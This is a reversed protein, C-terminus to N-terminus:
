IKENNLMKSNKVMIDRKVDAIMDQKIYREITSTVIEQIQNKLEDKVLKEMELKVFTQIVRSYYNKIEDSLAGADYNYWSCQGRDYKGSMKADGLDLGNKRIDALTERVTDKIIENTTIDKIHKRVVSDLITKKIELEFEPDNDIIQKIIPASNLQLKIKDM